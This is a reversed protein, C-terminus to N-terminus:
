LDQYIKLMKNINNSSNYELESHDLMDNSVNKWLTKNNILEKIERFSNETNENDIVIGGTQAVLSPLPGVDGVALPTGFEFAEQIVLPLGEFWRSPVIIVKSLRMIQHTKKQDLSGKFVINPSCKYRSQLTQLLPGDGVVCVKIGEKLSIESNEALWKDIGKEESVRGVFLIDYERDEYSYYVSGTSIRPTPKVIVQDEKFGIEIYKAKQFETLVIIKNIAPIAFKQMLKTNLAAVISMVYSNRFCKHKISNIVTKEDLCLTCVQGARQPVGASCGFRYNPATVVIKHKRCAVFASISIFPWTNYIHIADFDQEKLLTRIKFFEIINFPILIYEIMRRILSSATVDDSFKEYKHLHIGRMELLELEQQYALTEGSPNVSGYYNYITLVRM